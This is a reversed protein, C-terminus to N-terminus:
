LTWNKQLSACLGRDAQTRRLNQSVGGDPLLKVKHRQARGTDCAGSCTLLGARSSSASSKAVNWGKQLGSDREYCLRPDGRQM